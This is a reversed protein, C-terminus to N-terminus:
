KLVIMKRTDTFAGSAGDLQEVSLRAFYTGSPVRATWNAQYAGAEREGELLTAVREGYVNFVELRVKSRQTLSFPITTSPNFPNPFNQALGAHDPVETSVTRVDTTSKMEIVWLPVDDAWTTYDPSYNIFVYEDKGDKDMDGGPSGYFLRPSISSAAAGAQTWIDFIVKVTWSTSDAPDGTGKYELDFIQGNTEGGIMLDKKGNHDPDAVWMSRFKGGSTKPLTILRKINSPTLNAVDTVGTIIYIENQPETSAIYMERKGDGNVDDVRVADLAGIDVNSAASWQNVAFHEAYSTDSVNEFLRFTFKDWVFLYIEKKGDGDLDGTTTSYNSGSFSAAYKWKLECFYFGSFDGDVKVVYVSRTNAGEIRMGAVLENKGDGDMDEISLSYPRIDYNDAVGFNYGGSYSFKGTGPDKIGYDNKGVVGNWEFFWVRLPNPNDTAAISPFSVAIDVVGNNNVDGVAIGCFSNGQVPIVWSWVLKYSDNGDSEYMCVANTDADTWACIFEGLGDKDTDFGAKVIAMDNIDQRTLYAPVTLKWTPQWTQAAVTVASLVVLVAFAYLRRM